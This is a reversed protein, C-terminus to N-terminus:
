QSVEGLVQGDAMRQAVEEVAKSVQLPTCLAMLQDHLDLAVPIDLLAPGDFGLRGTRNFREWCRMAADRAAVASQEALPDVAEALIMTVNICAALLHFDPESGAGTRLKEFSLRAPVCLRAQEAEDFLVVRNFVRFMAMPDAQYRRKAHSATRHATKM